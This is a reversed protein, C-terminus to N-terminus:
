LAARASGASTVRATGATACPMPPRRPGTTTAWCSAPAAYGSRARRAPATGGRRRISWGSTPAPCRHGAAAPTRPGDPAEMAIKGCTETSGYGDLLPAGFRTEVQERLEPESPAGATVCLRLSPVAGLGADLLQRYTLPVGALVTPAYADVLRALAAPEPAATIRASAGAVVTGLVCLSHAYTHTLPLPWLVRDTASLGLRPLYCAVPSWLASRQSSVAARPSGSTGSTYLLWAPEDLGLDDPPSSAPGGVLEEFRAVDYPLPGAGEGTVVLRMSPRGEALRAIRPLNRRDTVLVAPDCDTLLEALESDTGRSSLPVGVAAARVTALLGEVLEVSNDLCFAVRAGRGVALGVALRATRRELEAWSVERRDDTFAPKDGRWLSNEVLLEAVTRVEFEGFVGM